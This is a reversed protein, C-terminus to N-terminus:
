SVAEMAPLGRALPCPLRVFFTTGEGGSEFAMSGGHKQVISRAVFLGQGTGRGAAKTTFFLDFIRPRHEPEIGCGDDRIALEIGVTVTRTVIGISGKEKARNRQCDTVADVANVLLNIVVQTLEVRNGRVQPLCDDLDRQVHVSHRWKSRTITLADQVVQNVDVSDNLDHDPHCYGRISTLITGIRETGQIVHRVASPVHERLFAMDAGESAGIAETGLRWGVACAPPRDSSLSLDDLARSLFLAHDKISQLPSAVEHVIGAALIGLSELKQAHTRQSEARLRETADRLVAMLLQHGGMCMTGISVDLPFTTGDKRLGAGDGATCLASIGSPAPGSMNSALLIAYSRGVLENPRYGFMDAATQNMWQITGETDTTVVGDCINEVLAQICETEARLDQFRRVLYSNRKKELNIHCAAGVAGTLLTCAAVVEVNRADANRGIRMVLFSASGLFVAWALWLLWPSRGFLNDRDHDALLSMRHPHAATGGEKSMRTM